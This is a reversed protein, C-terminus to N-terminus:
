ASNLQLLQSPCTLLPRNLSSFTSFPSTLDALLVPCQTLARVRLLKLVQPLSVGRLRPKKIYLHTTYCKLRLIPTFTLYLLLHSFMWCVVQCTITDLIWYMQFLLGTLLSLSQLTKVALYLLKAQAALFVTM